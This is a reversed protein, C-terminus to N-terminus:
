QLMFGPDKKVIHLRSVLLILLQIVSITDFLLSTLIIQFKDFKSIISTETCFEYMVMFYVLSNIIVPFKCNVILSIQSINTQDYVPGTIHLIFLQKLYEYRM